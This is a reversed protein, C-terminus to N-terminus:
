DEVSSINLSPLSLPFLSVSLCVSVNIHPLFMSRNDGVGFLSWVRLWPIHWSWFDFGCGKTRVPCLELLQAVWGPCPSCIRIPSLCIVVNGHFYFYYSNRFELSILNNRRQECLYARGVQQLDYSLLFSFFLVNFFWCSKLSCTM